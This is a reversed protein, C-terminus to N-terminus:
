EIGTKPRESIPLWPLGIIDIRKGRTPEGKGSPNFISRMTDVSLPRTKGSKGSNYTFNELLWKQVSMKTGAIKGHYYARSFVEVLRNQNDLFPLKPKRREGHLRKWLEVDKGPFFGKLGEYIATITEEDIINLPNIPQDGESMSSDSKGAGSPKESSELLRTMTDVQEILRALIESVGNTEQHTADLKSIDGELIRDNERNEILWARYQIRADASAYKRWGADELVGIQEFTANGEIIEAALNRTERVSADSEFKKIFEKPSGTVPEPSLVWSWWNLEQEIKVKPYPSKRVRDKFEEKYKLLEHNIRHDYLRKWEGPVLGGIRECRSVFQDGSFNETPSLMHTHFWRKAELKAQIVSKYDKGEKRLKIEEARQERWETFPPFPNRNGQDFLWHYFVLQNLTVRDCTVLNWCIRCLESEAFEKYDMEGGSLTM